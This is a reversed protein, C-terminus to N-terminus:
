VPRNLMTFVWENLKMERMAQVLGEGFLEACLKSDPILFECAGGTVTCEWGHWEDTVRACSCSM